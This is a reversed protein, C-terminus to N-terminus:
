ISHKIVEIQNELCIQVCAVGIDYLHIIYYLIIFLVLKRLNSIQTTAFVVLIYTNCRQLLVFFM